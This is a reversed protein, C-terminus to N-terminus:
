MTEVPHTMHGSHMGSLKRMDQRSLKVAALPKMSAWFLTELILQLCGQCLGVDARLDQFHNSCSKQTWGDIHWLSLRIQGVM